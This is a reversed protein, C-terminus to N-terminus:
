IIWSLYVPMAKMPCVIVLSLRFPPFFFFRHTLLVASNSSIVDLSRIKSPGKGLIPFCAKGCYEVCVKMEAELRAKGYRSFLMHMTEDVSVEGCFDRDYMLFQVVNFLQSPELGTKDTINRRFMLQFEEWDVCGDLNEDVEWIMDEIEKQLLLVFLPTLIQM